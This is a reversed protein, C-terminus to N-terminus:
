MTWERLLDDLETLSNLTADPAVAAKEFRQSSAIHITKMGAARGGVVDSRPDDGVYVATVPDVGLAEALHLFPAATPKWKNVSASFLKADFGNLGFADLGREHMRASFMTNSLLGMKYGASKVAQLAMPAGEIMTSQQHIGDEYAAGAEELWEAPPIPVNIVLLTERVLDVVRLNRIGATAEDWWDPLLGFGATKFTEFDPLPVGHAHLSNYAGEFGPTELAPWSDYTGAYEILTGGLDFIVANIKTKMATNYNVISLQCNAITLQARGM